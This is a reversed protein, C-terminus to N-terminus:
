KFVSANKLLVVLPPILLLQLLIGPWATVFAGSMFAAWTFVNKTFVGFIVQATGWVVRGMLAAFVLSIYVAAMSSKIKRGMLKLIAPCLYGYAALEFMMCVARPYLTPSGFIFSRTVPTLLGVLLGYWPGLMYGAIMVPIHMPCLMNGIEPVQGTVFPLLWGISLFMGAFCLKRIRTNTGSM